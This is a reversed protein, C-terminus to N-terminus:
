APPTEAVDRTARPLLSSAAVVHRGLNTLPHQNCLKMECKTQSLDTPAAVQKAYTVESSLIGKSKVHSRLIECLIYINHTLQARLEDYM